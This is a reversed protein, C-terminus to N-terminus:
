PTLGVHTSRAWIAASHKRLAVTAMRSSAQTPLGFRHLKMGFTSAVHDPWPDESFTTSISDGIILLEQTPAASSEAQAPLFALVWAACLLTLFTKM